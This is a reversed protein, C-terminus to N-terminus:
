FRLPFPLAFLTDLLFYQALSVHLPIYYVPLVIGLFAASSNLPQTFDSTKSQVNVLFPDVLSSCAAPIGVTHRPTSVITGTVRGHKQRCTENPSKM